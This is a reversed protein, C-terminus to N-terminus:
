KVEVLEYHPADWFNTDATEGDMDWDGGWRLKHSIVGHALLSEATALVFRAFDEAGERDNWHIHPKDPFYEMVDVANSPFSNHLSEPYKLQSKGTRYYEDQVGKNRRGEIITCDRVFIVDEFIKILDEHCTELRQQSKSSFANTM